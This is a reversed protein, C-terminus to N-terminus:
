RLFPTIGAALDQFRRLVNGTARWGDPRSIVVRLASLQALTTVVVLVKHWKLVPCFRFEGATGAFLTSQWLHNGVAPAIASWMASLYEPIM